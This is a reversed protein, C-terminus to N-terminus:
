EIAGQTCWRRRLRDYFVWVVDGRRTQAFYYERHVERRWWGGAIVYPGFMNQVPGFNLRGIFWGDDGAHQRALPQPETLLRRVLRPALVPRPTAARLSAGRQWRFQAAPLHGDALVAHAVADDGFEARLRALARNGAALDRHKGTAFLQLQEPAAVGPEVHLEFGEVEGPMEQLAAGQLRLRLLDLLQVGDL